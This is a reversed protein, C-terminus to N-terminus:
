LGFSCPLVIIIINQKNLTKDIRIHAKKKAIIKKEGSKLNEQETPHYLAVLAQYLTFILQQKTYTIM